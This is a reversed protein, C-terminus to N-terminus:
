RSELEAVAGVARQGRLSSSSIMSLHFALRPATRQLAHNSRHTAFVSISACMIIIGRMPM